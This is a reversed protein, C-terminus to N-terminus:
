VRAKAIRMATLPDADYFLGRDHKKRHSKLRPEVIIVEHRDKTHLSPALIRALDGNDMTVLGDEFSM